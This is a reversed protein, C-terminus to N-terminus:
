RRPDTSTLSSMEFKRGIWFGETTSSYQRNNCLSCNKLILLPFSQSEPTLDDVIGTFIINEQTESTVTDRGVGEISADAGDDRLTLPLSARCKSHGVLDLYGETGM